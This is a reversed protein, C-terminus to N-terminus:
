GWWGRVNDEKWAEKVSESPEAVKKASKKHYKCYFVIANVLCPNCITHGELNVYGKEELNGEICIDCLM